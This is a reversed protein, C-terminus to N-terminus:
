DGSDSTLQLKIAQSSGSVETAISQGKPIKGKQKIEPNQQQDMERCFALGPVVKYEGQEKSEEM